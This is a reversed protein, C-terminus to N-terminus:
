TVSSKLNKLGVGKRRQLQRHRDSGVGGGVTVYHIQSVEQGEGIFESM